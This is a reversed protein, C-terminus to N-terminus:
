PWLISKPRRLPSKAPLEGMFVSLSLRARQKENEGPEVPFVHHMNRPDFTALEPHCLLPDTTMERLM